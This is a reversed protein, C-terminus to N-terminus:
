GFSKHTIQHTFTFKVTDTYIWSSPESLKITDTDTFNSLMLIFGAQHNLKVQFKIYNPIILMFEFEHTTFISKMLMCGIQHTYYLKFGNTDTWTSSCLLNSTM